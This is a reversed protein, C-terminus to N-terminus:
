HKKKAKKIKAPKSPRRIFRPQVALTKTRGKPYTPKAM